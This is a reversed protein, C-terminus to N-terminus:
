KRSMVERQGVALVNPNLINQIFEAHKRRLKKIYNYVYPIKLAVVCVKLM